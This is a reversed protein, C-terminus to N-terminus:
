VYREYRHQIASIVNQRDDNDARDVDCTDEDFEYVGFFTDDFGVQQQRGFVNVTASPKRYFLVKGRDQFVQFSDLTDGFFSMTDADFWHGCEADNYAEMIQRM